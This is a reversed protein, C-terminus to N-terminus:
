FPSIGHFGEMDQAIDSAKIIKQVDWDPHMETFKLAIEYMRKYSPSIEGMQKLQELSDAIVMIPLKEKESPDKLGLLKITANDVEVIGWGWVTQSEPDWDPSADSGTVKAWTAKADRLSEAKIVRFETLRWDPDEMLGGTRLALKFKQM